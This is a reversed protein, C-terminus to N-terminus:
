ATAIRQSNPSQADEEALLRMVQEDSMSEIELALEASWNRETALEVVVGLEAITPHHFLAPAALEIGHGQNIRSVVQMGKISDGGLDFFNDHMGISDVQLVARWISEISRELETTAAAFSRAFLPGLQAHLQTRQVKGTAAMPIRDVFVISSPIKYDALRAFLFERLDPEDIRSGPLRVVVAVLDEGLSPHPRAFAAAAVVEDHELLAEDVERPSVKEGGRNIVEKLRGTIFLYGDSDLRGLDGTRFWGDAFACDHAGADGAYAGIVGPGRVAIEGTEDAQLALGHEDLIAIQAGAPLGVSGPKRLAPPLPNSAMQHSAETMGYAEVVPAGTGSELRRLTAPSLAASSSRIFRFRHGPLRSRYRDALAAVSRHITPVATYWTPQFAQVWDIFESESFGPTCVMSSGATISALLAGVLGHVHFLPMVNLCRDAPQLALGKAIHRASALLNAHTLPVWKPAATTGSTPLLLAIDSDAAASSMLGDARAPSPSPSAAAETPMALPPDIEVVALGLRRAVDRAPGDLGKDLIIFRVGASELSSHLEAATSAFNLPMCPACSATGLFAIAAEPGNRLVSAVHTSPGAGARALADALSGMQQWLGAYTLPARQPALLALAQPQQQAQARVLEAIGM